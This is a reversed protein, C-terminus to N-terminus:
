GCEAEGQHTKLHRVLHKNQRFVKGCETCQYPKLDMHITRHVILNSHSAFAKGCDPCVYPKEGTHTRRHRVLTAKQTFTKGCQTCCYPRAGTHVVQHKTLDKRSTFAKGCTDCVFPREGTHTRRHIVLSSSQRYAKGCVSCRYPKQDSHVTQHKSLEGRTCFAKACLGCVYPREVTHTRKHCVLGSKQLFAKGCTACCYPRARAHTRWHMTLSSDQSFSKGCERCKYPKEQIRAKPTCTRLPSCILVDDCAHAIHTNGSSPSGQPCSMPAGALASKELETRVGPGECLYPPLRRLHKQLPRGLWPSTPQKGAHGGGEQVGRGSGEKHVVLVEKALGQAGSWECERPAKQIEECSFEDTGGDERSQAIKGRYSGAHPLLEKVIYKPSTGKTGEWGSPEGPTKVHNQAVWPEEELELPLIVSVNPPSVGVFVLNRYTDLMVDRYLGRQAPTLCRWEKWTFDVAVDEFTLQTVAAMGAGQREEEEEPLVVKWFDTRLAHPLHDQEGWEHPSPSHQDQSHFEPVPGQAQAQKNLAPARGSSGCSWEQKQRNISALIRRSPNFCWLELIFELPSPLHSLPQTSAECALGPNSQEPGCLCFLRWFHHQLDLPLASAKLQVASPVAGLGIEHGRISLFFM